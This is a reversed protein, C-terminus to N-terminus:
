SITIANCRWYSEVINEVKIDFNENRLDPTSLKTTTQHLMGEIWVAIDESEM